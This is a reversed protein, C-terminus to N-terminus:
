SSRAAITDSLFEIATTSRTPLAPLCSWSSATSETEARPRTSLCQLSRWEGARGRRLGFPCITEEVIPADTARLALSELPRRGRARARAAGCQADRGPPLAPLVLAPRLVCRVRSVRRRRHPRDTGCVSAIRRILSFLVCWQSPSCKAVFGFV